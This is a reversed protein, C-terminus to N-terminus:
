VNNLFWDLTHIVPIPLLIAVCYYDVSETCPCTKVEVFLCCQLMFSTFANITAAPYLNACHKWVKFDPIIFHSQTLSQKSEYQMYLHSMISQLLNEYIEQKHMNLRHAWNKCYTYVMFAILLQKSEFNDKDFSKNYRCYYIWINHLPHLMVYLCYTAVCAAHNSHQVWRSWLASLLLQPNLSRSPYIM